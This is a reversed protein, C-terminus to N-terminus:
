DQKIGELPQELCQLSLRIRHGRYSRAEAVEGSEDKVTKQRGVVKIINRQLWARGKHLAKIM